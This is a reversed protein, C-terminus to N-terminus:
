RILRKLLPMKATKGVQKAWIWKAKLSDPNVNRRSKVMKQALVFLTTTSWEVRKVVETHMVNAGCYEILIKISEETFVHVHRGPVLQGPSSGLSVYGDKGNPIIIAMRGGIRLVRFWERLVILPVQEIHELCHASVVCDFIESYFPLAAADAYVDGFANPDIDLNLAKEIRRKGCGINLTKGYMYKELLETEKKSGM